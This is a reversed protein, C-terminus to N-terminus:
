LEGKRIAEARRLVSSLEAATTPTFGHDRVFDAKAQAFAAQHRDLDLQTWDLAPQKM